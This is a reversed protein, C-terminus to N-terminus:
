AFYVPELTSTCTNRVKEVLVLMPYESVIHTKETHREIDSTNRLQVNIYKADITVLTFVQLVSLFMLHHEALGVALLMNFINRGVLIYPPVIRCLLLDPM